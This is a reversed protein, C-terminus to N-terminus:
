MSKVTNEIIILGENLEDITINLRPRFRVSQGGCALIFLGDEFCKHIFNKRVEGNELDFACFLGRGRVNSVREPYTKELRHLENILHEGTLRVNALMHEEEILELYRTARVMDVLSGGWTSNIRSSVKFVNDPEEDVKPGALIGCVQMKKGFAMIDPKVEM